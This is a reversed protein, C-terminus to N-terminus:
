RVRRMKRRLIFVTDRPLCRAREPICCVAVRLRRRKQQKKSLLKPM